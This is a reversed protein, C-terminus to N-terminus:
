KWSALAFSGYNWVSTWTWTPNVIAATTQIVYGTALAYAGGGAPISDLFTFPSSITNGDNPTYGGHASIVLCGNLSPTVGTAQAFSTKGIDHYNDISETDFPATANSGSFAMVACGCFSNTKTITVTHAANGTANKAYFM